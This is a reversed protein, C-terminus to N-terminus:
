LEIIELDDPVLIQGNFVTAAEASYTQKRTSLTHDETHYMILTSVGLAAANKGADLATSHNKEYPKYIERDDYLCFAEHMLYDAGKAYAEVTSNYPEDGLCVLRKGNPLIASYGFQKEKPSHIDFCTLEMGAAKIKQGDTIENLIVGSGLHKLDKAKLTLRCITDIVNIVKDHGYVNFTGTYKGSNMLMMVRRNVWITGLIHDTHAHTVFMDQIKSLDIKAKEFQALIGNGGGADVLMMGKDTEITYCTNYCHTVFADGTGLITIKAM